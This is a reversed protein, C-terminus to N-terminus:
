PTMGRRRAQVENAFAAIWEATYFGHIQEIAETPTTNSRLLLANSFPQPTPDDPEAACGTVAVGIFQPEGPADVIVGGGITKHVRSM